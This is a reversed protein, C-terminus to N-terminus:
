ASEGIEKAHSVERAVDSPALVGTCLSVLLSNPFPNARNNQLKDMLSVVSRGDKWIRPQNLDPHTFQSHGIGLMDM